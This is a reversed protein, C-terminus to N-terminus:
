KIGEVIKIEELTLGFINYILQDIKIEIDTTDEKINLKKKTLISTSLAILEDDYKSFCFPLNDVEYGNVNSSTNRSKFVFNLLSSNLWALILEM